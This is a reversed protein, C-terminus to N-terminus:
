AYSRGKWEKVIKFTDPLLRGEAEEVTDCRCYMLQHAWELCTNGDAEVARWKGRIKVQALFSGDPLSVIRCSLKKKFFPFM